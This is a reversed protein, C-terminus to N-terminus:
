WPTYRLGFYALLLLLLLTLGALTWPLFDDSAEATTKELRTKQMKDISGFVHELGRPDDPNFAEGGTMSTIRVIEDPAQSDGINIAYCTIGDRILERAIEEDAGGSLDSSYGDTVLVIMRDGEEREVLVKRCARLAKGIETGGFWYPLQRPHMFPPACKVASPDTTLPVWHLVNNGFFTLGFADGKRADVFKNIADMAGTYRDGSGFQATMSGSVDVCFEINTLARKSRPVDWLQPGALIVLVVALALAPLSEACRLLFQAVRSHQIKSDDLPLVVARGARKWTWLLLAAPVVLLALM